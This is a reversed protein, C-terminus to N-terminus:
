LLFLLCVAIVLTCVTVIRGIRFSLPNYFMEMQHMGKEIPIARLTYDACYIKTKEGDVYAQWDPNYIESLVLFGSASTQVKLSIRNVGFLQNEIKYVPRKEEGSM